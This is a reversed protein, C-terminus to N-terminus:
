ASADSCALKSLNNLVDFPLRSVAPTSLSEDKESEDENSEEESLSAVESALAFETCWNLLRCSISGISSSDSAVGLDTEWTNVGEKCARPVTNTADDITRPKNNKRLLLATTSTSEGHPTKVGYLSGTMAIQAVHTDGHKDLGHLPVRVM